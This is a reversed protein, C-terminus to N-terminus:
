EAGGPDPLVMEFAGGAGTLAEAIVPEGPVQSPIAQVLVGPLSGNQLLVTGGLRLGSPAVLAGGPGGGTLTTVPPQAVVLLRLRGLGTAPEPMVQLIYEAGGIVALSFFGAGDANAEVASGIGVTTVAVVRVGSVPIGSADAVTGQLLSPASLALDQVVPTAEEVAFADLITTGYGAPVDAPAEIVVQYYGAPVLLQPLEGNADTMATIRFTGSAPISALEISDRSVTLTGVDPLHTASLTVRADPVPQESGPAGAVVRLEVPTVALPEYEFTLELNTQAIVEVVGGAPISVQPLGTGPPPSIEVAQQGPRALLTFRGDFWDATGVGSPLQGRRLGVQTDTVPLGSADLVYGAVPVGQDFTLTAPDTLDLVTQGSLLAPAPTPDDPIVVVDYTVDALMQVSFAGNSPVHLERYLPFGSQILRLYASFPGNPGNLVNSVQMGGELTYVQNTLPTNGILMVVQQQRPVGSSAPPTFRLLYARQEGGPDTVTFARYVNFDSDTSTDRVTVNAEYGGPQIPMFEAVRPPNRVTLSVPLGDPDTVSWTYTSPNCYGSYQVDLTVLEGAEPTTPDLQLYYGCAQNHNTNSNNDNGNSGTDM